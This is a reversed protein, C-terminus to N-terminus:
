NGTVIRGLRPNGSYHLNGAGTCSADLQKLEGLTVDGTGTITVNARDVALDPADVTTADSAVLAFASVHGALKLTGIGSATADISTSALGRADVVSVGHGNVQLVTTGNMRISGIGGDPVRSALSAVFVDAHGGLTMTGTGSKALELRAVALDTAILAGSGSSAIALRDGRLGRLRLTGSGEHRIRRVLDPPVALRVPAGEAQLRLVGGGVEASAGPSASAEARSVRLGPVGRTELDALDRAGAEIEITLDGSGTVM